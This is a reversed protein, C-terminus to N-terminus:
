LSPSPSPPSATLGSRLFRNLFSVTPGLATGLYAMAHGIAPTLLQSPTGLLQLKAVYAQAQELPVLEVRANAVLTPPGGAHVQGIPSAKGVRAPSGKAQSSGFVYDDVLFPFIEPQQQEAKRLDFIGSWSVLAQVAAPPGALEAASAAITGGASVGFLAIHAADLHFREASAKVFKIAAITDYVAAPYPAIRYDITFAAFHALALNRALGTVSGRDGAIFGGPHLVIVAPLNRAGEISYANMLLGRHSVTSYVIGQEVDIQPLPSPKGPTAKPGAARDSSCAACAALLLVLSLRTWSRQNAM